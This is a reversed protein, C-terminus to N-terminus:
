MGAKRCAEDTKSLWGQLSDQAFKVAGPGNNCKRQNAQVTALIKRATNRGFDCVEQDTKMHDYSSAIRDMQDAFGKFMDPCFESANVSVPCVLLLLGAVLSNRM